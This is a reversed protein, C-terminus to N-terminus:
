KCRGVEFYSMLGSIAIKIYVANPWKLNGMGISTHYFGRKYLKDITFKFYFGKGLWYFRNQLNM